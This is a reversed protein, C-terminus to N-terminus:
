LQTTTHQTWVVRARPQPENTHPRAWSGRYLSCLGCSGPSCHARTAGVATLVDCPPECARLPRHYTCCLQCARLTFMSHVFSAVSWNILSYSFCTTKHSLEAIVVELFPHWGGDVARALWCSCSYNPGLKLAVSPAAREATCDQSQVNTERTQASDVNRLKMIPLHHTIKTLGAANKPANTLKTTDSRGETHGCPVARSGSSPNEQFKINPYQEFIQRSFELKIM